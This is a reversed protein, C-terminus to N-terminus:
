VLNRRKVGKPVKVKVGGRPKKAPKKNSIKARSITIKPRKITIKRKRM